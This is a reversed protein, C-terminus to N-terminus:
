WLLSRRKKEELVKGTALNVVTIKSGYVAKFRSGDATVFEQESPNLNFRGFGSYHIEETPLTIAHTVVYLKGKNM